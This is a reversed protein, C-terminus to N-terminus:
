LAVVSIPRRNVVDRYVAFAATERPLDPLIISRSRLLGWGCEKAPRDELLKSNLGDDFQVEGTSLPAFAPTALPITALVPALGAQATPESLTPAFAEKEGNVIVLSTVHFADKLLPFVPLATVSESEGPAGDEIVKPVFRTSKGQTTIEIVCQSGSLDVRPESTSVEVRLGFTGSIKDAVQPFADDVRVGDPQSFRAGDLVVRQEGAGPAFFTLAVSAPHPVTVTGASPFFHVTTRTLAGSIGFGLWRKM